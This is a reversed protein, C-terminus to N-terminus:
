AVLYVSIRVANRAPKLSELTGVFVRRGLWFQGGLIDIIQCHGGGSAGLDRREGIDVEAGYVLELAPTTM